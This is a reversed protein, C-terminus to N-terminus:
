RVGLHQLAQRSSPYTSDIALAKRYAAVGATTDGSTVLSEGMSDWVNASGPYLATNARFVARAMPPKGRRLLAYGLANIEAESSHFRNVPQDRYRSLEALVTATDNRAELPAIAADLTLHSAPDLIAALAPDRGARYDDSSIPAYLAPPVFDRHDRPDSAYWPLTSINVTLGSVPLLLPRHDGFFNTANGTPEGVFTANTWQELDLVLNMAASFTRGSVLVFLRDRRDLAPRAVLGRVVQRNYFSNGGGNNRLDIVLREVPLSDAQAFVGRWFEQNGPPPADIVGRYCVYLMRSEPLWASWYVKDHQQEWLPAPATRMNVWRRMDIPGAPNHGAPTLLGAPELVVREEVGDRAIVVPLHAADETIGLGELEEALMLRGAASTKIWWENEGSITRAVAKLADSAALRGIRLVKAGALRAHASDAARIYLGDEFLEYRVPYYHWQFAPDFLPNLATHGDHVLAVLEMLAVQAQSRGLGPLRRGLARVASDWTARPLRAFANPHRRPLERAILDLDQRWAAGVPREHGPTAATLLLLAGVVIPLRM